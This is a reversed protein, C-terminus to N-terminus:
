CPVWALVTVGGDDNRGIDLRGGVRGLRDGTAALGLGARGEWNAPLGAGDDQVAVTVGSHACFLNVLVATAGAHKEVNLLAERVAAILAKTGPAPLPPVEDCMLLQVPVGSREEFSCCDARLAVALALSDPAAHLSRLSERFTAAAEATQREIAQLKASLDPDHALDDGLRRVRAGIAFLMAGVTDHLQLALRRREEHVAVETSHRAREALLLESGRGLGLPLEAPTLVFAPSHSTM